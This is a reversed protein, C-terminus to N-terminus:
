RGVMDLITDIEAIIHELHRRTPRNGWLVLESKMLREVLLNDFTEDDLRIALASRNRQELDLDDAAIGRISMHQSLFPLFRENIFQREQAENIDNKSLMQAYLMLGERIRPDAILQLRGSSILDDLVARPPAFKRDVVARQLVYMVSDDSTLARNLVRRLDGFLAEDFALDSEIEVYSGRLETRLGRLYERELRIEGRSDWWADIAFALLISVVIAASEALLTRWKIGALIDRPKV